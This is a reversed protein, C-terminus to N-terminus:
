PDEKGLGSPPKVERAYSSTAPPFVSEWDAKALALLNNVWLDFLEFVKSSVLKARIRKSIRFRLSKLPQAAKVNERWFGETRESMRNERSLMQNKIAKMTQKQTKSENQNPPTVKM